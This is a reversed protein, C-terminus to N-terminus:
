PLPKERWLVSKWSFSRACGSPRRRASGGQSATQWGHARGGGLHGTADARGECGVAEQRVGQGKRPGSRGTGAAGRCGSGRRRRFTGVLTTSLPCWGAVRDQDCQPAQRPQPQQRPALSM